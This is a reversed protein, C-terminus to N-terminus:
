NDGKQEALWFTDPLSPCVPTYGQGAGGRWVAEISPSDSGRGEFYTELHNRGAFRLAKKKSYAPMRVSAWFFPFLTHVGPTHHHPM